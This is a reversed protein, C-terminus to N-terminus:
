KMLTTIENCLGLIFLFELVGTFTGLAMIETGDKLDLYRFQCKSLKHCFFLSPKVYFTIRGNQLINCNSEWKPKKWVYSTEQVKEM